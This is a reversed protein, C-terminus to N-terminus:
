AIEGKIDYEGREYRQALDLMRHIAIRRESEPLWDTKKRFTHVIVAFERLFFFYLIRHPAPRLEYLKDGINDAIPRRLEEGHEKLKEVYAFAKDKEKQPLNLLEELVPSRGRADTYYVVRKKSV